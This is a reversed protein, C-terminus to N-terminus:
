KYEPTVKIAKSRTGASNSVKKSTLIARKATHM